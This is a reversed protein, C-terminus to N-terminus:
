QGRSRKKSSHEAQEAPGRVDSVHIHGGYPAAQASPEKKKQRAWLLVDDGNLAFKGARPIERSAAGLRKEVGDHELCALQLPKGQRSRRGLSM